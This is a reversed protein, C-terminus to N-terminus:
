DPHIFPVVEEQNVKFNTSRALEILLDTLNSLRMNSYADLNAAKVYISILKLEGSALVGVEHLANLEKLVDVTRTEKKLTRITM